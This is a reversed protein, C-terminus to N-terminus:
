LKWVAREVETLKEFALQTVKAQDFCTKVPQTVFGRLGGDSSMFFDSGDWSEPDFFIGKLNPFRGGPYDRQVVESRSDDTPGCRGKFALGSYEKFVEGKRGHVAVPYISWGSLRKAVLLEIIRHHFVIPAVFGTWVVDKPAGGMFQRNIVPRKPTLEGRTLADADDVGIEMEGRFPRKSGPSRLLYLAEFGPFSKSASRLVM